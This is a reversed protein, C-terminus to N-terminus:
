PRYLDELEAKTQVREFRARLEPTMKGQEEVSSIVSARREELETLYESRDRIDRIQLEDLEGTAEKRYRAIFPITNGQGLLELAAAVKAPPLSLETAIRFPLPLM